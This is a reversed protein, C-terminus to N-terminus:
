NTEANQVLLYASNFILQAQTENVKYKDMVYQTLAKKIHEKVDDILTDNALETGYKVGYSLFVGAVAAPQFGAAALAQSLPLLEQAYKAIQKGIAKAKPSRIWAFLFLFFHGIPAFPNFM